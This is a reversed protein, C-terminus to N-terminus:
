CRAPRTRPYPRSSTEAAHLKSERCSTGRRARDSASRYGPGLGITQLRVAPQVTPLANPARGTRYDM